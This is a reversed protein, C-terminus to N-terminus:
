HELTANREKRKTKKKKRYRRLYYRADELDNLRYFITDGGIVRVDPADSSLTSIRITLIWERRKLKKAM